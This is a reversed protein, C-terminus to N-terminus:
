EGKGGSEAPKADIMADENCALLLKGDELVYVAGVSGSVTNRFGIDVELSMQAELAILAQILEGLKM